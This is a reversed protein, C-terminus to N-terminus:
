YKENTFWYEKPPPKRNRITSTGLYSNYKHWVEILSSKSPKGLIPTKTHPNHSWTIVLNVDLCCLKPLSDCIRQLCYLKPLPMVSGTCVICSKCRCWLDAASLVVEAAFWLDSCVLCSRSVIVFENCVVWNRCRIVIESCVVCSRCRIVFESCVAWSRCHIVLESCFV